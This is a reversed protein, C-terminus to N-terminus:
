HDLREAGEPIVSQSSEVTSRIQIISASSQKGMLYFVITAAVIVILNVTINMPAFVTQSFDISAPLRFPLDQYSSKVLEQLHGTEAVKALSSGSLGGHWVMLGSYGAAGILGYNLTRNSNLAAEAMKRALVAGFILGLGWNFLAILMTSVVVLAAAQATNKPIRAIQFILTNAPKSIALVHGLVLMLMMQMAFVMLSNSWLGKNWASVVKELKSPQNGAEGFVLALLFTLLTLLLAITFPAPLSRKLVNGFTKIFAM